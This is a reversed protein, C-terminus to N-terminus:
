AALRGKQQGGPALQGREPERRCIQRGAQMANFNM